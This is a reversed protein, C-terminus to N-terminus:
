KEEGLEEDIKRNLWQTKSTNDKELKAEFRELKERELIVSFTKQSERRKRFYEARSKEAIIKM